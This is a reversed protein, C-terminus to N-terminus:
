ACGAGLGGFGEGGGTVLSFFPYTATSTSNRAALVAAWDANITKINDSSINSSTVAAALADYAATLDTTQQPTPTSTYIASFQSQLASNGTVATGSAFTTVLSNKFSALASPSSPSLGDTKLTHFAVKIATLQGVTTSSALEITQVDNRLKQHAATLAANSASTGSHEAHTHSTAVAHEHHLSAAVHSLVTREELCDWSLAVRKPRRPTPSASGGIWASALRKWVNRSLNM